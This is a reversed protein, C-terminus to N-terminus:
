GGMCERDRFLKEELTVIRRIMVELVAVAVEPFQVLLKRFSERDLTLCELPTLARVSFLRNTRSFLALGGFFDGPKFEELFVSSHKLERIVQAKGSIVIYGRDDADGQRFLFAGEGYLVRKSMYAYIKLCKPPIGSFVPVGRLIELNMDLECRGGASDPRCVPDTETPSIM